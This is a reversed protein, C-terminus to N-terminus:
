LYSLRRPTQKEVERPFKEEEEDLYILPDKAAGAIFALALLGLLAMLGVVLAISAGIILWALATEIV